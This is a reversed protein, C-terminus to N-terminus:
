SLRYRAGRLPEGDEVSVEGRRVLAQLHALTSQAAPEFLAPPLKRYIESVIEDISRPTLGLAKLIAAERQRRHQLLARVFRKPERVPGGHGPWYITDDRELLLRLSALYESMDGDPPIVVSTSWAMVHDGSFLTGPEEALAFCLHNSAHGPTAVATLTFGEGELREGDALIRDPEYAPLPAAGVPPALVARPKPCGVIPAGTAEALPIALPFHDRHTHTLVIHSVTEQGVADRLARLHAEDAPGPDIIAVKGSGVIYTCTGRFTFPSPNPALVRRIFPSLRVVEGAEGELDRNFSM